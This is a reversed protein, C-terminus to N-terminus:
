IVKHCLRKNHYNEACDDCAREKILVPFGANQFRSNRVTDGPLGDQDAFADDAQQGGHEQQEYNKYKINCAGKEGQPLRLPQRHLLHQKSDGGGQRAGDGRQDEPVRDKHEAAPFHGGNEPPNQQEVSNRHCEEKDPQFKFKKLPDGLPHWIDEQAHAYPHRHVGVIADPIGRATHQVANGGSSDAGDDKKDPACQTQATQLYLAPACMM